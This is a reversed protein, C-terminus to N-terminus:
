KVRNLLAVYIRPIGRKGTGVEARLFMMKYGRHIFIESEGGQVWQPDFSEGDWKTGLDGGYFSVENLNICSTGKPAFIHFEFDKARGGNQNFSTSMYSKNHGIKGKMKNLGEFDEDYLMRKFDSGFLIEAMSYSQGSRVVIDESIHINDLVADMKRAYENPIGMGTDKLIRKAIATENTYIAFAERQEETADNWAQKCSEGLMRMTKEYTQQDRITFEETYHDAVYIQMEKQSYEHIEKDSGQNDNEGKMASKVVDFNHRVFYPDKGKQHAVVIREENDSCWEKFGKPYDKIPKEKPTFEEGELEADLMKAIEKKDMMIPTCICKCQPHWGEFVFDKPYDGALQECIDPECDGDEHSQSPEIHFGLIFEMNQWRKQDSRRYAMNTETRTVRMANKASSKYMGKGVKYDDKDYDIWHKRGNSDVVLKKWKRGWVVEKKEGIKNGQDDLIDTIKEGEKYRFRRFMLDPDNLYKRVDRSMESASKGEGISVTMAVEMEERLQRTTKWIRDSLSMSNEKRNMFDHMATKNRTQWASFHPDRLVSKGLVDGLMADVADNAHEWEMQMGNEVALTATASLRRLLQEVQKQTKVSQADFSFMEGESVNPLNTKLDMIDAVTQAFMRRVKEAYADSRVRSAIINNKAKKSVNKQIKAM